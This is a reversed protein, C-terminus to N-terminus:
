HEGHMSSQALNENHYSVRSFAVSALQEAFPLCSIIKCQYLKIMITIFNNNNHCDTLFTHLSSYKTWTLIVQLLMM